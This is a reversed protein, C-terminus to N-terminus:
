GARRKYGHWEELLFDRNEEIVKLARNLERSNLIRGPRAVKIDPELWVKADNRDDQSGKGMYVRETKM